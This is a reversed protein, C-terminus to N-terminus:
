VHCEHDPMQTSQAGFLGAPEERLGARQHLFVNKLSIPPIYMSIGFYCFFFTVVFDAVNYGNSLRGTPKDSGPLDVGYYPKDAGPVEEGPLHNNNGVDLMSDGFM